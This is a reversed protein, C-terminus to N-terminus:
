NTAFRRRPDFHKRIAQVMQEELFRRRAERDPQEEVFARSLNSDIDLSQRGEGLYRRLVRAGKFVLRGRLQEAAALAVFIEDLVESKWRQQQEPNM